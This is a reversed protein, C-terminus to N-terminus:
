VSGSQRHALPTTVMTTTLTQLTTLTTPIPLKTVGLGHIIPLYMGANAAKTVRMVNKLSKHIRILDRGSQRHALPTAMTTTLTPTTMPTTRPNPTTPLPTM